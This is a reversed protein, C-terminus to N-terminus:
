NGCDYLTIEMRGLGGSRSSPGNSPGSSTGGPAGSNQTATHFGDVVKCNASIWTSLGSENNPNGGFGNGRPDWYIFRLEHNAVMSALERSTVVQDSGMFGGLFLVPRGTAIVYDSGQMSSPVAMLYTTNQTLPELYALLAQNVELGGANLPGSSSGDYAAPLSQNSSPHLATLGSWIGPTILVAAMILSFGAAASRQAPARRAVALILVAGGAVLLGTVIPQWGITSLFSLATSIQLKLTIGTVALLLVVALWPQQKRLRWLEIVGIAALAVLPGAM